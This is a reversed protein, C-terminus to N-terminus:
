VFGVAGELILLPSRVEGVMADRLGRLQFRFDPDPLESLHKASESAANLQANAQVLTMDPKIRGAVAFSHLKDESNLNFQFPIWLQAEPESHFSEATVGVVTYPQKDLSIAEGVISRNGGFRDKWLDYSLVVVKPGNFHDETHDFARGLLFPTGFLR